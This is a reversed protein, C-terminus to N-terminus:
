EEIFSPGAKGIVPLGSKANVIGKFAQQEALRYAKDAFRLLQTLPGGHLSQIATVILNYVIQKPKDILALVQLLTKSKGLKTLGASDSSVSYGKIQYPALLALTAEQTQDSELWKAVLEFPLGGTIDQVLDFLGPSYLTKTFNESM